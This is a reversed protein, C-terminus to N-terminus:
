WCSARPQSRWDALMRSADDLDEGDLLLLREVGKAINRELEAIRQRPAKTDRPKTASVKYGVASGARKTNKTM